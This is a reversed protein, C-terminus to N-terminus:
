DAIEYGAESVAAKFHEKGVLDPDYAVKASEMELSVEVESVGELDKLAKSVHKVCMKCTMGKVRLIVEKEM